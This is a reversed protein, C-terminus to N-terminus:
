VVICGCHSQRLQLRYLYLLELTRAQVLSTFTFKNLLPRKIPKVTCEQLPFSPMLFRCCSKAFPINM